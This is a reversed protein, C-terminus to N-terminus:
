GKRINEYRIASVNGKIAVNEAGLSELVLGEGEVTIYFVGTNIGVKKGTYESVKGHNEIIVNNNDIAILRLAGVAEPALGFAQVIEKKINRKKGV